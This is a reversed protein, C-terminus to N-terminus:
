ATGACGSRRIASAMIRGILADYEIGQMRCLIPLDSREPNLGPLPNVEIFNPQGDADCRLDVRGGDRCGLARWAAMAVRHAEAVVPDAQPDGPRYEIRGVYNEKNDYSYVDAEAAPLLIVEMSGLVEASGDTGAIGVTFERGPLYEEVLVPQRFKALLDLCVAELAKADAIKSAGTIGKSTGEAVPKAFLPYRMDIAAIDAPREVLAFRPTAVGAHAVVMKTMDKHLCVSLVLPDSFVYPVQYLDLLAPVQAERSRGHLGEAINFVLDWRDGRTLRECLSRGHGIRDTQHGLKRIAAEIGDITVHSDFEATEEESYGAALYDSKLDYTLGIRM